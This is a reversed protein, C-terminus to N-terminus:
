CKPRCEFDFVLHDVRPAYSKVYEVHDLRINWWKSNKFFTRLTEICGHAFKCWCIRKSDSLTKQYAETIICKDGKSACACKKVTLPKSEINEHIHLWGGIDSKLSECAAQWSCSSSPILGLNVRDAINKPAVQFLLFLLHMMCTLIPISKKGKLSPVNKLNLAWLTDLMILKLCRSTICQGLVFTVGLM